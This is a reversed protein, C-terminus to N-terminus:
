VSFWSPPAPFQQATDSLPHSTEAWFSHEPMDAALLLHGRKPLNHFVIAKIVEAFQILSMNSKLMNMCFCCLVVNDPTYAGSPDIRDFSCTMPGRSSSFLDMAIGSYICRGDQQDWQSVVGEFTLAFGTGETQCRSRVTNLRRKLEAHISGPKKTKQLCASCLVHGQGTLIESVPVDCSCDGCPLTHIGTVRAEAIIDDVGVRRGVAIRKACTQCEGSPIERSVPVGQGCLPCRVNTSSQRLRARSVEVQFRALDKRFAKLRAPEMKLTNNFMSQRKFYDNM